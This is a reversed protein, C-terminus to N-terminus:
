INLQSLIPVWALSVAMVALFLAVIGAVIGAIGFARGKNSATAVISLVWGVFGALCAVVLILFGITAREAYAMLAPDNLLEDETIRGRTAALEMFFDRFDVAMVWSTFILAVASIAVLVLAVVGLTASRRVPVPAYVPAYGYLPASSYPQAYQDQSPYQPYQGAPPYQDEPGYQGQHPDQGQDFQPGPGVHVGSGHEDWNSSM